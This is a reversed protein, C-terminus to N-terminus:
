QRSATTHLLPRYTYSLSMITYVYLVLGIHLSRCVYLLSRYVFLFSWFLSVRSNIRVFSVYIFLYSQIDLKMAQICHYAFSAPIHVFSVHNHIRVSRSRSLSVHNYIRIFLSIYTCFFGIYICILGIYLSMIKYVYSLSKHVYL